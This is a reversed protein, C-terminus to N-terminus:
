GALRTEQMNVFSFGAVEQEEKKKIYGCSHQLWSGHNAGTAVVVTGGASPHFGGKSFGLVFGFM